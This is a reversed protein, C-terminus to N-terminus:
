SSSKTQVLPKVAHARAVGQRRNSPTGKSVARGPRLDDQVVVRVVGVARTNLGQGASLRDSSGRAWAQDGNVPSQDDLDSFAVTWAAESEASEPNKGPSLLATRLAPLPWSRRGCRDCVLVKRRQCRGRRRVIECRDRRGKSRVVCDRRRRRTRGPGPPIPRRNEHWTRGGEYGRRQDAFVECQASIDLDIRSRAGQGAGHQLLRQRMSVPMGRGGM